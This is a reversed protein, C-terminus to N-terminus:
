RRPRKALEQIAHNQIREVAGSEIGLRRITEPERTFSQVLERLAPDDLALALSIAEQLQFVRPHHFNANSSQYTTGTMLQEKVLRRTRQITAESLPPGTPQEIMLTLVALAEGVHYPHWSEGEAIALVSPAAIEGFRALGPHLVRSFGVQVLADALAPIAKPDGLAIVTELLDMFGMGWFREPRHQLASPPLGAYARSAEAAERFIRNQREVVTILATRLEPGMKEPTLSKRLEYFADRATTRDEALIQRALAQQDVPTQAGAPFAFAMLMLAMLLTYKMHLGGGDGHSTFMVKKMM